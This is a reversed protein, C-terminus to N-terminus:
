DQPILLAIGLVVLTAGAWVRLTVVEGLFFSSFLVVLFVSTCAVPYAYSLDLKTLCLIWCLLGTGMMTVAGAGRMLTSPTSFSRVWDWSFQFPQAQDVLEKVLIQSASSLVMFLVLYINGVIFKSM